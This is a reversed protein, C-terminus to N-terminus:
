AEHLVGPFREPNQKLEPVDLVFLGKAGDDLFKGEAEGSFV